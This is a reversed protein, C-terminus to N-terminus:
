LSCGPDASAVAVNERYRGRVLPLPPIHDHPLFPASRVPHYQRYGYWAGLIGIIGGAIVDTPHHRYDM